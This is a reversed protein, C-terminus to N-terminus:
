LIFSCIPKETIDRVCANPHWTLARVRDTVEADGGTVLVGCFILRVDKHEGVLVGQPLDTEDLLFRRTFRGPALPLDSFDEVRQRFAIAEDDTFEGAEAPTHEFAHFNESKGGLLADADIRDLAVPLEVVTHLALDHGEREGHRRFNFMIEERLPGLFGQAGSLASPDFEASGLPWALALEIGVLRFDRRQQGVARGLFINGLVIADGFCRDGAPEFFSANLVGDKWRDRTRDGPTPM